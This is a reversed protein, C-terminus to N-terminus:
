LLGDQFSGHGFQDRIQDLAVLRHPQRRVRDHHRRGHQGIFADAKAPRDLLRALEDDNPRPGKRRGEAGAIGDRLADVKSREFPQGDAVGTELLQADVALRGDEGELLEQPVNGFVSSRGAVNEFLHERKKLRIDLPFKFQSGAEFIEADVTEFLHGSCRIGVYRVLATAVALLPAPWVRGRSKFPFHLALDAPRAEKERSGLMVRGTIHVIRGNPAEAMSQFFDLVTRTQSLVDAHAVNVIIFLQALRNLADPILDAVFRQPAVSGSVLSTGGNSHSDSPRPAM